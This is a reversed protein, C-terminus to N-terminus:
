CLINRDYKFYVIFHVFSCVDAAELLYKLTGGGHVLSEITFSAIYPKDDRIIVETTTFLPVEQVFNVALM